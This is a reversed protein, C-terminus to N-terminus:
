TTSIFFDLARPEPELLLPFFALLDEELPDLPLPEFDLDLAPVFDFDFDVALDFVLFDPSFLDVCRADRLPPEECPPPPEEVPPLPWRAVALFAVPAALDALLAAVFVAALRAAM